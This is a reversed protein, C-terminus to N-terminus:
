EAVVKRGGNSFEPEADGTLQERLAEESQDGRIGHETAMSRLEQFEEPLEDADFNFYGLDEPSGFEARWAASFKRADGRTDFAALPVEAEREAEEDVWGQPDDQFEVDRIVSREDSGGPQFFVEYKKGHWEPEDAEEEGEEAEEGDDDGVGEPAQAVRYGVVDGNENQYLARDEEQVVGDYGAQQEDDLDDVGTRDYFERSGSSNRWYMRNWDHLKAM